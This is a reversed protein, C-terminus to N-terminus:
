APQDSVDAPSEAPPLDADDEGRVLLRNVVSEVAHAERALRAARARLTRTPVWGRLEVIGPGVGVAMLGLPRLDADLELVARIARASASPSLPDSEARAPDLRRRAGEILRGRDVPGFWEGLLFGATLGAAAGVLTWALLESPAPRRM